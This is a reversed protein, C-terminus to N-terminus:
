LNTHYIPRRLKIGKKMWNILTARRIHIGSDIMRQHQRYLPLHYVGKNVM